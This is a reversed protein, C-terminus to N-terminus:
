GHGKSIMRCHSRTQLQEMKFYKDKYNGMWPNVRGHTDEGFATVELNRARKKNQCRRLDGKDFQKVELLKAELQPPM